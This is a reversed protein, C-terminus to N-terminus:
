TKEADMKAGCQPCCPPQWDAWIDADLGKFKNQGCVPCIPNGNEWEGRMIPAVDAAPADEIVDAIEYMMLTGYSRATQEKTKNGYKVCETLDFGCFNKLLAERDIYEAM